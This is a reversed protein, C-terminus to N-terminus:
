SSRMYLPNSARVCTFLPPVVLSPMSDIRLVSTERPTKSSMALARSTGQISGPSAIVASSSSAAAIASSTVTSGPSMRTMRVPQHAFNRASRSAFAHHVPPAGPRLAEASGHSWRCCTAAIAASLPITSTAGSVALSHSDKVYRGTWAMARRSMPMGSPSIQSRSASEAAQASSSCYSKRSLAAGNGNVPATPEGTFGTAM